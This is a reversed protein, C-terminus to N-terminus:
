DVESVSNWKRKFAQAEFSNDIDPKLGSKAPYSTKLEFCDNWSLDM